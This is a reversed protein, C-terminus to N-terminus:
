DAALPQKQQPKCWFSNRYEEELMSCIVAHSGPGFHHRLVSEQKFGIGKNWRIARAHKHPTATWLKNCRLQDFAYRFLPKCGWVWKPSRAAVTLQCTRAEPQWDHFVIVGYFEADADESAAIGIATCPGFGAVGVHPIQAAAWKALAPSEEKGWILAVM